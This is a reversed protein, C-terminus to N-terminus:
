FYKRWCVVPFSIVAAKLKTRKLTPSKSNLKSCSFNSSQSLSKKLLLEKKVRDNTDESTKVPNSKRPTPVSQDITWTKIIFFALKWYPGPLPDLHKGTKKNSSTGAQRIPESIVFCLM